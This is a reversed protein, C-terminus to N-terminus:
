SEFYNAQMSGDYILLSALDPNSYSMGAGWRPHMSKISHANLHPRWLFLNILNLSPTLNSLLIFSM